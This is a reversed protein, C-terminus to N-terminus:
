LDALSHAADADSALRSHDLDEVGVAVELIPPNGGDRGLEDAGGEVGANLAKDDIADGLNPNQLKKRSRDKSRREKKEGKLHIPMDDLLHPILVRAYNRAKTKM